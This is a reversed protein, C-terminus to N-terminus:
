EKKLEKYKKELIERAENPTRGFACVKLDFASYKQNKSKAAVRVIVNEDIETDYQFIVETIYMAKTNENSERGLFPHRFIYPFWTKAYTCGCVYIPKETDIDIDYYSFIM